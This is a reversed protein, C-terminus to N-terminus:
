CSYLEIMAIKVENLFFNKILKNYIL